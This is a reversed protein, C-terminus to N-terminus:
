NWLYHINIVISTDNSLEFSCDRFKPKKFISYDGSFGFGESPIGIDNVNLENDANQDHFIAIAYKGKPINKLSVILSTDNAEVSKRFSANEKTKFDRENKFAAIM